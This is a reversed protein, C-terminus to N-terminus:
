VPTRGSTAPADDTTSSRAIDDESICTKHLKLEETQSLDAGVLAAVVEAPIKLAACALSDRYLQDVEMLGRKLHTRGESIFHLWERPSMAVLKPILGGTTM